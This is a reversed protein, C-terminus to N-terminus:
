EFFRLVDAMEKESLKKNTRTISYPIRRSGKYITIEYIGPRETETQYCSWLEDGIKRMAM